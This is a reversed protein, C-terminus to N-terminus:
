ASTLWKKYPVQTDWSHEQLLTNTYIKLIIKTTNKEIAPYQFTFGEEASILLKTNLQKFRKIIEQSTGMLLTDATDMVVIIQDKDIGRLADRLVYFRQLGHGAKSGDGDKTVHTEWKAYDVGIGILSADLNWAKASELFPKSMQEMQKRDRNIGWGWVLLKDDIPNDEFSNENAFLDIFSDKCKYICTSIILIVVLIAIISFLVILPIDM